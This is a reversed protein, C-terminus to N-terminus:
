LGFPSMSNFLGYAAGALVSMVLKYFIYGTAVNATAILYLTDIGRNSTNLPYQFAVTNISAFVFLFSLVILIASFSYLSLILSLIALVLLAVAPVLLTGFRAILLKLDFSVKELRLAAYTTGCGVAIGAATLLLPKLFGPGIIPSIDWKIFWTLFYLASLIATLGMTILSNLLQAAQVEKMTSYPRTLASLFFGWYQKSVRKAQRVREDQLLNDWQGSARRQPQPQGNDSNPGGPNTFPAGGEPNNM